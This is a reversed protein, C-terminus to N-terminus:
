KTGLEASIIFKPYLQNQKDTFNIKVGSVSGSKELADWFKLATENDIAVGFINVQNRSLNFSIRELRMEDNVMDSLRRLMPSLQMRGTTEGQILDGAMKLRAFESINEESQRHLSEIESYRSKLTTLQNESNLMSLKALGLPALLFFMMFMWALRPTLAFRLFDHRVPTFSMTCRALAGALWGTNATTADSAMAVRTDADLTKVKAQFNQELLSALGPIVIYPMALFIELQGTNGEQSRLYAFFPAIRSLLERENQQILEISEHDAPTKGSLLDDIEAKNLKLVSMLRNEIEKVSGTLSTRVALPQGNKIIVMSINQYGIALLCALGSSKGANQRSCAGIMTEIVNTVRNLSYGEESFIQQLRNFFSKLIYSVMMDRTEKSDAATPKLIFECEGKVGFYEERKLQLHEIIEREDMSAPFPLVKIGTQYNTVVSVQRHEGLIKGLNQRLIAPMDAPTVPITTCDYRNGAPVLFRLYAEEIEIIAEQPSRLLNKWSMKIEKAIKALRTPRV